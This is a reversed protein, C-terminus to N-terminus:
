ASCCAGHLRSRVGAYAALWTKIKAITELVVVVPKPHRSWGAKLAHAAADTILAARGKTGYSLRRWGCSLWLLLEEPGFRERPLMERVVRYIQPRTIRPM